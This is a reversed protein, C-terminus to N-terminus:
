SSSPRYGGDGAGYFRFVPWDAADGGHSGSASPNPRRQVIDASHPAMTVLAMSLGRAPRASTTGAMRVGDDAPRRADADPKGSPRQLRPVRCRAPAPAAHA